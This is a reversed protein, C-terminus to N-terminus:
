ARKNILFKVEYKIFFLNYMVIILLVLLTALIVHMDNTLVEKWFVKLDEAINEELLGILMVATTLIALLIPVAALKIIATLIVVFLVLLLINFIKINFYKKMLNFEISIVLYILLLGYV